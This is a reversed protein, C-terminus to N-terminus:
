AYYEISKFSLGFFFAEIFGDIEENIILENLLPKKSNHDKLYFDTVNTDTDGRIKGFLGLGVNLNISTLSKLILGLSMEDLSSLSSKEKGLRNHGEITERVERFVIDVSRELLKWKRDLYIPQVYKEASAEPLEGVNQIQGEISIRELLEVAFKWDSSIM